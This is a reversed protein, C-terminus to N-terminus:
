TRLHTVDWFSTYGAFSWHFHHNVQPHFPTSPYGIKLGASIPFDNPPAKLPNIEPFIYLIMTITQERWFCWEIRPNQIGVFSSARWEVLNEPGSQCSPNQNSGYIACIRVSPNPERSPCQTPTGADSTPLGLNQIGKAVPSTGEPLKVYSNFIAM